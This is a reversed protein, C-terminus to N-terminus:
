FCVGYKGSSYCYKPDVGNKEMIAREVFTKPLCNVPGPGYDDCVFRSRLPKIDLTKYCFHSTDEPSEFSRTVAKKIHVGDLLDIDMRCWVKTATTDVAEFKFSEFTRPTTGKAAVLSGGSPGLLNLGEAKDGAKVLFTGLGAFLASNNFVVKIKAPSASTISCNSPPIVKLVVYDFEYKGLTTAPDGNGAKYLYWGPDTGSGTGKFSLPACNVPCNRPDDDRDDDDADWNYSAILAQPPKIISVMISTSIKDSPISNVISAPIKIDILNLKGAAQPGPIIAWKFVSNGNPLYRPFLGKNTRVDYGL